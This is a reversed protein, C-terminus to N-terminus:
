STITTVQNYVHFEVGEATEHVPWEYDDLIIAIAYPDSNKDDKHIEVQEVVREGHLGRQPDEVTILYGENPVYVEYGPESMWLTCFDIVQQFLPTQAKM